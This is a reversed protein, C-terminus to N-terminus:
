SIELSNKVIHSNEVRAEAGADLLMRVICSRAESTSPLRRGWALHSVECDATLLAAELAQTRARTCRVRTLLYAVMEPNLKDAAYTLLDSAEIGTRTGCELLLQLIRRNRKEVAFQLPSIM